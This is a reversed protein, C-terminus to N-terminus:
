GRPGNPPPSRSPGERSRLSGADRLQLAGPGLAERERPRPCYRCFWFFALSGLKPAGLRQSGGTLLGQLNHGTLAWPRPPRAVRTARSRGHPWSGSRSPNTFENRRTTETQM